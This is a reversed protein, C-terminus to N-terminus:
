DSVSCRILARRLAPSGSYLMKLAFIRSKKSEAVPANRFLYKLFAVFEPLIM